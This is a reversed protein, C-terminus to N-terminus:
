KARLWRKYDETSFAEYVEGVATTIAVFWGGIDEKAQAILGRNRADRAIRHANHETMMM